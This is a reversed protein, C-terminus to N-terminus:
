PQSQHFSLSTSPNASRLLKNGISKFVKQCNELAMLFYPNTEHPHYNMKENEIEIRREWEVVQNIMRTDM